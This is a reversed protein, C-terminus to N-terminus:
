KFLIDELYGTVRARVEVKERAEVRGVFERTQAIPRKEATVTGVAVAAPAAPAKQQQAGASTICPALILLLACVPLQM